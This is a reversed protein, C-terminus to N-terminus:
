KKGRQNTFDNDRDPGVSYKGDRSLKLDPISCVDGGIMHWLLHQRIDFAMVSATRWDPKGNSLSEDKEREDCWAILKEIRELLESALKPSIEKM